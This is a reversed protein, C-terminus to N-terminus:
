IARRGAREGVLVTRDSLGSALGADIMLKEFRRANVALDAGDLENRLVTGMAAEPSIVLGWEEGLRSFFDGSTMPMEASLAGVLASLLDPTASLYRYRTGGASMGISELLVRFGEGSRDYNANEFALQALARFDARRGMRRLPEVVAQQLLNATRTELESSWDVTRQKALEEMVNALTAITAWRIATRAEDYSRESRLRVRDDRRELGAIALLLCRSEAPSETLDWARRLSNVALDLALVTRLQWLKAPGSAAGQETLGAAHRCLAQAMVALSEDAGLAWSQREDEEVAPPRRAEEPLVEELAAAIESLPSQLALAEHIGRVASEGLEVAHASPPPALLMRAFTIGSGRMRVKRVTFTRAQGSPRADYWLLKEHFPLMLRQGPQGQDTSPDILSRLAAKALPLNDAGKFDEGAALQKGYEAASMDGGDLLESIGELFNAELVLSRLAFRRLKPSQLEGARPDRSNAVLTLLTEACLQSAREDRDPDIGFLRKAIAKPALRQEPM